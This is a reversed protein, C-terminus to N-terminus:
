LEALIQDYGYWEINVVSITDPDETSILTPRQRFYREVSNMDDSVMGKVLLYKASPCSAEYPCFPMAKSDLDKIVDSLNNTNPLFQWSRENKRILYEKIGFDRIGRLIERQVDENNLMNEIDDNLSYISLMQNLNVASTMKDSWINYYRDLNENDLVGTFPYPEAPTMKNLEEKTRGYLEIIDKNFKSILNKKNRLRVKYGDVDVIIKGNIHAKLDLSDKNEKFRDVIISHGQIEDNLEQRYLKIAWTYRGILYFLFLISVGFIAGTIISAFLLLVVISVMITLLSFIFRLVYSKKFDNIKDNKSSQLERIKEYEKDINEQINNKKTEVLSNQINVNQLTAINKIWKSKLNDSEAFMLMLEYDYEAVLNRLISIETEIDSMNFNLTKNINKNESNKLKLEQKEM